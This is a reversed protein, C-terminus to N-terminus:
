PPHVAAMCGTLDAACEIIDVRLRPFREFVGGLVMRVLYNEM